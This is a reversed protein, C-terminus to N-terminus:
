LDLGMAQLKFSLNRFCLGSARLAFSSAEHTFAYVYLEFGLGQLRYNSPWNRFSMDQLHTGSAQLWLTM